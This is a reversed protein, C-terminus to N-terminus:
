IKTYDIIYIETEGFGNNDSYLEFFFEPSIQYLGHGCFNNSPIENIIMGNVKTLKIANLFSQSINFIHESTGIDIITDYIEAEKLEIGLDHIKTAGEYDNFDYSEVKTSGMNAILFEEVYKHHNDLDKYNNRKFANKVSVGSFAQRGFTATKKFPRNKSIYKLLFGTELGIAM